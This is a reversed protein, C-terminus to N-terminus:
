AAHKRPPLAIPRPGAQVRVTVGAGALRSLWRGAHQLLAAEDAPAIDIVLSVDGHRGMGRVHDRLSEVNYPDVHGILHICDNSTRIVAHMM